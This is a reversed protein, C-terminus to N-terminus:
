NEKGQVISGCYNCEASTRDVWEIEDRRLPGGCQPCAPPLRLGPPPQVMEAASDGARAFEVRLAGVAATLGRQELRVIMQRLFHARREDLGLNNLVRLAAQAERLAAQEARADVLCHAARSHLEAAVRPRELHEAERALDALILGAQSFKGVRLFRRVKILALEAAPLETATRTRRFRRFM